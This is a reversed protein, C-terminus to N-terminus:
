ALAEEELLGLFISTWDSRSGVPLRDLYFDSM